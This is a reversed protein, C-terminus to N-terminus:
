CLSGSPISGRISFIHPKGTNESRHRLRRGRGPVTRPSRSGSFVRKRSPALPHIHSDM